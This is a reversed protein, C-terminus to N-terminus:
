FSYATTFLLVPGQEFADGDSSLTRQSVPLRVTLSSHVGHGLHFESALMWSTSVLGSNIDRGGRWHAYSQYFASLGTHMTLWSTTTHSLAGGVTVETSSQYGNRNEYLPFRGLGFTSARIERSLPYSYYLELLPDFTGTGFQVHEHALGARGAVFPDEETRGTPLSTGFVVTALDGKAFVDSGNHAVLLHLDSLGELTESGHHLDLNRQMSAQQSVSAPNVLEVSATRKKIDYPVRTWLDWNDAFTYQVGLEVRTFDLVVNHRHEPVSEVQGSSSLGKNEGHSAEFDAGQLVDLSFRLTGKEKPVLGAGM